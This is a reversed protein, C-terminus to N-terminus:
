AEAVEDKGEVLFHHTISGETRAKLHPVYEPDNMFNIAADRSPWEIIIAFSSNERDGELREHSATRALYKGGYHAVLRNAPEMYDEIWADSTPTVEFISYYSM